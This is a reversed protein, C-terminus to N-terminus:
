GHDDAVFHYPAWPGTLELELGYPAHERDLEEVAARFRDARDVPLLYAGNLLMPREDGSVRRDHPRALAAARAREALYAHIAAVRDHDASRAAEAANRDAQKRRLWETGSGAAQGPSPEVQKARYVKVGWEANGRLRDLTRRLADHERALMEQVRAEDAYITCLRFPVVAGHALAHDIVAQHARALAEVRELDELAAKLPEEGFREVPVTSALAAIEGRRIPRVPAGDVGAPAPAADEVVGYVWEAVATETSASSSGSWGSACSV